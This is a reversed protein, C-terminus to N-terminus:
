LLLHDHVAAAAVDHEGVGGRPRPWCAAHAWGSFRAPRSGSLELQAAVAEVWGGRRPGPCPGSPGEPGGPRPAPSPRRAPAARPRVAAPRIRAPAPRRVPRGRSAGGGPRGHQDVVLRGDACAACRPQHPSRRRCPGAPAGHAPRGAARASMSGGLRSLMVPSAGCRRLVSAQAAPPGAPRRGAEVGAQLSSMTTSCITLLWASGATYRAQTRPQPQYVSTTTCYRCCRARGDDFAGVPARLQDGARMPWCSWTAMARPRASRWGRRLLHQSRRRGIGRRESADGVHPAGQRCFGIGRAQRGLGARGTDASSATQM